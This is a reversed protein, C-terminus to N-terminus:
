PNNEEYIESLVFSVAGCQKCEYVCINYHETTNAVIPKIFSQCVACMNPNVDNRTDELVKYLRAQM